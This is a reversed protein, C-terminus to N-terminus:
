KTLGFNYTRMFKQSIRSLDDPEIRGIYKKTRDFRSKSVARIEECQIVSDKELFDYPHNGNRIIRNPRLKKTEDTTSSYLLYWSDRFPLDQLNLKGKADTICIVVAKESKNIDNNSIVLVPRCKNKESGVNYGLDCFWVEGQNVQLRKVPNTKSLKHYKFKIANWIGFSYYEDIEKDKQKIIDELTM